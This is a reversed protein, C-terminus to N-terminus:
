HDYHVRTDPSSEGDTGFWLQGTTRWGAATRSTRRQGNAAQDGLAALNNDDNYSGFIMNGGGVDSRRPRSITGEGTRRFTGGDLILESPDCRCEFSWGPEEPHDSIDQVWTAGDKITLTTGQRLRLGRPWTSNSTRCNYDVTAGGGIVIHRAATAAPDVSNMGESGRNIGMLTTANGTVNTTTTGGRTRTTGNAAPAASGSSRLYRRPRSPLSRIITDTGPTGTVTFFDDFNAPLLTRPTAADHPWPGDGDKREPWQSQSHGHELPGPVLGSRRQRDLRLVATLPDTPDDPAPQRLVRIGAEDVKISGPGTFNIM